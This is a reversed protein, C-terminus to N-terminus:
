GLELAIGIVLQYDNKEIRDLTPDAPQAPDETRLFLFAIDLDFYTDRMWYSVQRESPYVFIMGQDDAMEHEQVFMLGEARKAPTDMVWCTFVHGGEFEIVATELQDLPFNRLSGHSAGQGGCGILGGTLLAAALIAACRRTNMTM